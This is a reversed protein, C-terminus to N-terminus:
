KKPTYLGLKQAIDIKEKMTNLDNPATTLTTNNLEPHPIEPSTDESYYLSSAM